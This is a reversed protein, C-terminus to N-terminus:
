KGTSDQRFTEKVPKSEHNCTTISTVILVVVTLGTFIAVWKTWTVTEFIADDRKRIFNLYNQYGGYVKVQRGFDTLIYKQSISDIEIFGKKLMYPLTAHSKDLGILIQQEPTLEPNFKKHDFDLLKENFLFTEYEHVSNIVHDSAFPVFSPTEM